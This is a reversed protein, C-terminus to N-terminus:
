CVFDCSRLAAVAHTALNQRCVKRRSSSRADASGIARGTPSAVEEPVAALPGRGAVVEIRLERDSFNAENFAFEFSPGGVTSFDPEMEAASTGQV